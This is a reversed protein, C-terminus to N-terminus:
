QAKEDEIKQEAERKEAETRQRVDVIVRNPKKGAAFALPCGAAFACPCGAAFAAVFAAEFGAEFAAEFASFLFFCYFLSKEISCRCYQM